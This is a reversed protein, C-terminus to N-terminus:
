VIGVLLQTHIKQLESEGFRLNMSFEYNHYYKTIEGIKNDTSPKIPGVNEVIVSNKQCWTAEKEKEVNVADAISKTCLGAQKETAMKVAIATTKKCTAEHEAALSQLFGLISNDRQGRKKQLGPQINDNLQSVLAQQVNAEPQDKQFM